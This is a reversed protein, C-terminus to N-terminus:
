KLEGNVQAGDLVSVDADQLQTLAPEVGAVAISPHGQIQGLVQHGKMAVAVVQAGLRELQHGAISELEVQVAVPRQRQHAGVLDM